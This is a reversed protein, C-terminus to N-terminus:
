HRRHGHFSHVCNPHRSDIPVERRGSAGNHVFHTIDKLSGLTRRAPRRKSNLSDQRVALVGLGARQGQCVLASECCCHQQSARSPFSLHADFRIPSPRFGSRSGSSLPSLLHRLHRFDTFSLVKVPHLDPAKSPWDPLVSPFPTPAGKGVSWRSPPQRNYMRLEIRDPIVNRIGQRAFTNAFPAAYKKLFARRM